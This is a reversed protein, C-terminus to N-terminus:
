SSVGIWMVDQDLDEAVDVHIHRDYVGIRRFGALYAASVLLYRNRSTDSRIDVADWHGSPGLEHASDRKGTSGSSRYSSTVTIPAGYIHRMDDLLERLKPSMQSVNVFEKDKFDKM